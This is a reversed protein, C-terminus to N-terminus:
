STRDPLGIISRVEKLTEGAMSRAKESMERVKVNVREADEAIEERRARLGSTLEV